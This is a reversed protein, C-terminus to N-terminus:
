HFGPLCKWGKIDCIWVLAAAKIVIFELFYKMLMGIYM